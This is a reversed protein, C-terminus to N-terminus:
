RRSGHSLPHARHAPPSDPRGARSTGRAPDQRWDVLSGEGAEEADGLAREIQRSDREIAVVRGGPGVAHKMARAYHGLGAGLDLVSEGGRLALERLSSDNLLNNLLCLRGQEKPTTGHIYHKGAPLEIM